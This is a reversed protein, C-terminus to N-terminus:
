NESSRQISTELDNILLVMEQRLERYKEITQQHVSFNAVVINLFEDSQLATLLKKRNSKDTMDVLPPMNEIFFPIAMDIAFSKDLESFVETSPITNSYLEVVKRLLSDEILHAGGNVIQSYTAKNYTILSYSLLVNIHTHASDPFEFHQKSIYFNFGETYGEMEGIEFSLLATDTKLDNVLNQKLRLSKSDNDSSNRWENLMFSITIGIVIVILELFYSRSPRNRAM